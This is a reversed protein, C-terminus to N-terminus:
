KPRHLLEVVFTDTSTVFTHIVESAKIFGSKSQVFRAVDNPGAPDSGLAPPIAHVIANRRDWILKMEDALGARYKPAGFKELRAIWQGPKERLFQTAWRQGMIGILKSWREETPNSAGIGIIDDGTIVKDKTAMMEPKAETLLLLVSELYAGAFTVMMALMWDFLFPHVQMNARVMSTLEDFAKHMADINASTQALASSNESEPADPLNKRLSKVATVTPELVLQMSDIPANLQEVDRLMARLLYMINDSQAEFIKRAETRPSGGGDQVM